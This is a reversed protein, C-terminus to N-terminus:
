AVTPRRAAETDVAFQERLLALLNRRSAVRVDTRNPHRSMLRPDDNAKAVYIEIARLGNRAIAEDLAVAIEHAPQHPPVFRHIAGDRMALLVTVNGRQEHILVADNAPTAIRCLHHLGILRTNRTDVRLGAQNPATLTEFLQAENSCRRASFRVDNREVIVFGGALAFVFRGVADRQFSAAMHAALEAVRAEIAREYEGGVCHVRLVAPPQALLGTLAGILGDDGAHGTAAIGDHRLELLDIGAILSIHFGSFDLPDDWGSVIAEGPGRLAFQPSEEANVILLTSPEAVAGDYQSLLELLRACAHAATRRRCAPQRHETPARSGLRDDRRLAARRIGDHRRRATAMTGHASRRRARRHASPRRRAEAVVRSEHTPDHRRTTRDLARDSRRGRALSDSRRGICETRIRAADPTRARAATRRERARERKTTRGPDTRANPRTPLRARAGTARTHRRLASRDGRRTADVFRYGTDGRWIREKYAHALPAVTSDGAYSELLMLSPIHMYPFDLAADILEVGATLCEGRPIPDARGLDFTDDRGIFRQSKLRACYADYAHDLQPPVLWWIPYRGALLLASRYFADRALGPTRLRSRRAQEEAPDILTTTLAVGHGAAYRVVRALKESLAGHTSLASIVSLELVDGPLQTVYLAQIQARREVFRELVFSLAMKRVANLARRDPTYREIGCPMEFDVFGPLAAHNSHLLLPVADIFARREESLRARLADLREHNLALFRDRLARLSKRDIDDDPNASDPQM